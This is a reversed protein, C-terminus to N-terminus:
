GIKYRVPDTCSKIIIINSNKNIIIEIKPVRKNRTKIRMTFVQKM